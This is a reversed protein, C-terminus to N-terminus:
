CSSNQCLGVINHRALQILTNRYGYFKKIRLFITYYIPLLAGFLHREISHCRCFEGILNDLFRPEGQRLLFQIRSLDHDLWSTILTSIDFGPLLVRGFDEWDFVIIGNRQLGINNFSFDGHQQVHPLHDMASIDITDVYRNLVTQVEEDGLASVVRELETSHPVRGELRFHQASRELYGCIGRVLVTNSTPLRRRILIRHRVGRCALMEFGEAKGFALPQPVIDSLVAYAQRLAMYEPKIRGTSSAKVTVFGGVDDFVHFIFSRGIEINCARIRDKRVLGEASIFAKVQDIM